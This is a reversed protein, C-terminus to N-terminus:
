PISYQFAVCWNPQTKKTTSGVFPDSDHLLGWRTTGQFPTTMSSGSAAMAYDVRCNAGPDSACTILVKDGSIAVSNITVHASSSAYVEFGKGNVWESANQHPAQFTTDWVLPAVPVHFQVTIVNGSRTASIPQLPQWNNGLVIREYYIQGYKEGNQEYGATVLHVADTYYQYQYKPGSCM